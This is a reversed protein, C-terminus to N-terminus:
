FQRQSEASESLNQKSLLSININDLIGPFMESNGFYIHERVAALVSELLLARNRHCWTVGVGAPSRTACGTPSRPLGAACWTFLQSILHGPFIPLRRRLCSATLFAAWCASGNTEGVRVGTHNGDTNVVIFLPASPTRDSCMCM